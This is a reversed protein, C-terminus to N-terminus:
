QRRMTKNGRKLFKRPWCNREQRTSASQGNTLSKMPGSIRTHRRLRELAPCLAVERSLSEFYIRRHKRHWGPGLKALFDDALKSIRMEPAPPTGRQQRREAVQIMVDVGLKRLASAIGEQELGFETSWNKATRAVTSESELNIRQVVRQEGDVELVVRPALRGNTAPHEDAVTNINFQPM